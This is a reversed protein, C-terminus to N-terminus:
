EIEWEKMHHIFRRKQEPTLITHLREFLRVRIEISMREMEMNKARFSEADFTPALFLGNIDQQTKESQHHYRRYAQQYEKMADEISRLQQQTLGLDDLDMPFRHGDSDAYSPNIWALCLSMGLVALWKM